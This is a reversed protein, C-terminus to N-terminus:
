CLRWISLFTQDCLAKSLENWLGYIQTKSLFGRRHQNSNACFTTCVNMNGELDITFVKTVRVGLPLALTPSTPSVQLLCIKFRDLRFWEGWFVPGPKKCGQSLM